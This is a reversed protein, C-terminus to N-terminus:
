LKDTGPENRQDISQEKICYLHEGLMHEDLLCIVTLRTLVWCFSVVESVVKDDSFALTMSSPMLVSDRGFNKKSICTINHM